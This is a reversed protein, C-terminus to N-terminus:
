LGAADLAREIMTKVNKRDYGQGVLATGFEAWMRVRAKARPMPDALKSKPNAYERARKFADERTSYFAKDGDGTKGSKADKAAQRQERQRAAAETQRHHRATEAASMASRQNDAATNAFDLGYEAAAARQALRDLGTQRKRGLRDQKAEYRVERNERQRAVRDQQVKYQWEREYRQNEAADEQQRAAEQLSIDMLDEQMDELFGRREQDGALQALRPLASAYIQEATGQSHLRELDASSLAGVAAGSQQGMTAQGAGYQQVAQQPAQIGQLAGSIDGALGAGAGTLAGQLAGGLQQEQRQANAYTDAARGAFPQLARSKAATRSNIRRTGRGARRLLLEVSPYTPM